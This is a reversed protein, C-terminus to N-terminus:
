YRSDNFIVYSRVLMDSGLIFRIIFLRKCEVSTRQNCFPCSFMTDLQDMRMNSPPKARSKRKGVTCVFEGLGICLFAFLLM